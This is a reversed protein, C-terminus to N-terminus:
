LKDVFREFSKRVKGINEYRAECFSVEYQIDMDLRIGERSWSVIMCRGNLDGMVQEFWDLYKKVQSRHEVNDGDFVLIVGDVGKSCVRWSKEYKVDGATDWLQIDRFEVIRVGKTKKYEHEEINRVKPTDSLVSALLTKGGKKPGVLIFKM